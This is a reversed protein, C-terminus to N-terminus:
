TSGLLALDREGHAPTAGPALCLAAVITWGMSRQHLTSQRGDFQRGNMAYTPARGDIDNV